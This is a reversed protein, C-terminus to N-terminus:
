RVTSMHPVGTSSVRSPSPRAWAKALAQRWRPTRTTSPAPSARRNVQGKWAQTYSM